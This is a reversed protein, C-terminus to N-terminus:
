FKAEYDDSHVDFCVVATQQYRLEHHHRNLCILYEVHFGHVSLMVVPDFGAVTDIRQQYSQNMVACSHREFYELMSPLNQYEQHIYDVWDLHRTGMVIYIDFFLNSCIKNHYVFLFEQSITNLLFHEVVFIM